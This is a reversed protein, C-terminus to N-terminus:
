ANVRLAPALAHRIQAVQGQARWMRAAALTKEGQMLNGLAAM